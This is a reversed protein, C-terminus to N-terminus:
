QTRRESRARDRDAEHRARSVREQADPPDATALTGELTAWRLPTTSDPAGTVALAQLHTILRARDAESLREAQQIM